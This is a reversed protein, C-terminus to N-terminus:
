GIWQEKNILEPNNVPLMDNVIRVANTFRSLLDEKM